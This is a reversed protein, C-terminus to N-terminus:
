MEQTECKHTYMAAEKYMRFHIKFTEPDDYTGRLM